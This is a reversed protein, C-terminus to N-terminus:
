SIVSSVDVSQGFFFFFVAERAVTEEVMEGRKAPYKHQLLHRTELAKKHGNVESRNKMLILKWGEM